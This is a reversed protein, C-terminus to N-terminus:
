SPASNGHHPEPEAPDADESLRGYLMRMQIKESLAACQALFIAFLQDGRVKESTLERLAEQKIQTVQRLFPRLEEPETVDMQKLEVTLTRSILEDLKQRQAQDAAAAAHERWRRVWGWVLLAFAGAGFLAEKFKAVFEFAQALRNLGASPDHYNAVAPHMVAADYNRAAGASLLAPFSARLDAEHKRTEYLAELSARVLGDSADKKGVLLATVAVTRVPGPPVPRAAGAPYLGQPITTATLWPHRMALGDADDLGILELDDRQLLKELRPNMWSTTVLAADVRPDTALVGFYEEADGVDSVACHKLVTQSTQRMTSGRLGLAVRKHALNKPSEIGKNIRVVFHLPEPFLPAIGALGKPTPSVAQILALHVEGDRLRELNEETGATVVVSVERGTRQRLREAFELAFKYYLGDKQGAAIRIERPLEPERRAYWWAAVCGALVALATLGVLVHTRKPM